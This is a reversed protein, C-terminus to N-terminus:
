RRSQPDTMRGLVLIAGTEREQIAFIFPRDLTMTEPGGGSVPMSRGADPTRNRSHAVNMM